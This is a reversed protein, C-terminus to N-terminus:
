RGLFQISFTPSADLKPISTRKMCVLAAEHACVIAPLPLVIWKRMNWWQVHLHLILIVEHLLVSDASPYHPMCTLSGSGHKM